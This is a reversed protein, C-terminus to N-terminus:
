PSLVTERLLMKSLLSSTGVIAAGIWFALRYGGVLADNAAAHARILSDTHSTALSDLAALGVAGGVMFSTHFIGSVIGSDSPEVNSTAALLVPNFAIGAGFGILVMGPLVHGLYSGSGPTQAFLMLGLAAVLLGLSLPGRIGFRMVIKPSLGLSLAAMVVNAPLFALGVQLPRYGLVRQLYLTMFFFWAYIAAAWLMGVANAVAVNRSHILALPILPHAVQSEILTWATFLFISVGLLGMTQFSLWGAANGNAIAYVTLLLPLTILLAGVADLRKAHQDNRRAPLTAACAIYVAVGIPVNVFFIWHWNLLSTLIGSLVVGVSGGCANVFAYLGMAKAREAPEPFLDIILSLSVASVVAGGMGQLARGCILLVPSSAIGCALSALTFLMIGALFVKSYGHIDGLRGGLLLFGVFALLYANVIWVLFTQHLGLEAAISPLAVNVITEDFVIMLMGLCVALLAIRRNKIPLGSTM